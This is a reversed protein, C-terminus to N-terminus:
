ELVVRSIDDVVVELRRGADVRHDAADEYLPAREAFLEHVRGALDGADLLPRNRSGELRRAAEAPQIELYVITGAGRLALLNEGDLVAGGGCAIVAREVSCAELVAERELRRFEQEGRSEFIDPISRGAGAEVVLDTDVFPRGLRGALAAGVASKGSGMLGILM